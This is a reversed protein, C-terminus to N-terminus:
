KLEHENLVEQCALILKVEIVLISHEHLGQVSGGFMCWFPPVHLDVLEWGFTM